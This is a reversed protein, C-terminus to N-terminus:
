AARPRPRVAMTSTGSIERVGCSSRMKAAWKPSSMATSWEERRAPSRYSSHFRMLLPFARTTIPVREAM